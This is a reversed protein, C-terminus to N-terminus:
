RDDSRATWRPPWPVFASTTRQYDAYDARSKRARAETAPIGTVKLLFFLMVAPGLLALWWQPDGAAILLYAWWHVWEFFYNPHRSWAWLGSRCTTGRNAPDDRFRRLQRDAITEGLVAALWVAVGAVDWATWRPEPNRMAILVPLVFLAVLVAQAEFFWFLYPRARDGWHARLDQYRGDEPERLFRRLIHYALRFSWVAALGAALWKRPGYGEVFPICALVLVGIGGSWAVDIIGANRRWSVAWLVAVLLAMAAWGALLLWWISLGNM